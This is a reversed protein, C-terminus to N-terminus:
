QTKATQNKESSSRCAVRGRGNEWVTGVSVRYCVSLFVLYCVGAVRVAEVVSFGDVFFWKRFLISSFRQGGLLFEKRDAAAAAATTTTTTTTTTATATTTTEEVSPFSPLFVTCSRTSSYRTVRTTTTTTTTTTEPTDPRGSPPRTDRSTM